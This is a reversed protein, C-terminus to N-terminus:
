KEEIEVTVVLRKKRLDILTKFADRDTDPVTLTVRGGGDGDIKICSTETLCAHFIVPVLENM